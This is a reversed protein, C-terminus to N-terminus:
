HINNNFNTGVIAKQINLKETLVRRVYTAKERETIEM